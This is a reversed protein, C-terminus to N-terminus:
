EHGFLSGPQDGVFFPPPESMPDCQLSGPQVYTSDVVDQAVELLGRRFSQPRRQMM